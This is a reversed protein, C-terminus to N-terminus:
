AIKLEARSAARRCLQNAFADLVHKDNPVGAPFREQLEQFHEPRWVKGVRSKIAKAAEVHSLPPLEVVPPTLDHRTGRRPLFAPLMETEDLRKYPDFRGGFPLARSKRAAEAASVSDTGTVLQEIEKRATQAPTDKHRKYEEGIIAANYAFGFDDKPVENVVHFVERGDEGVLVVQAADDRWPNRTIMLTEGVMVGPVTSV